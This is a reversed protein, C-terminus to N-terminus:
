YIEIRLNKFNYIKFFVYENMVIGFGFFDFEGGVYFFCVYVVYLNCVLIKFYCLVLVIVFISVRIMRSFFGIELSVEYGLSLIFM